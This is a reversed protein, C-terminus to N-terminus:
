GGTYTQSLVNEVDEGSMDQRAHADTADAIAFPVKLVNALTQAIM